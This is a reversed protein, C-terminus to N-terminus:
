TNLLVARHILAWTTGIIADTICVQKAPTVSEVDKSPRTTVRDGVDVKRVQSGVEVVKGCFEHGPIIPVKVEGPRGMFTNNRIAIDTGCLGAAAIKLLAEGPRPKPIEVEQVVCEPRKDVKIVAKMEDMPGWFDIKPEIRPREKFTM